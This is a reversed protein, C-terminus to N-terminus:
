NPSFIYVKKLEMKNRKFSMFIGYFSGTGEVKLINKGSVNIIITSYIKTKGTKFKSINSKMKSNKVIFDGLPIGFGM